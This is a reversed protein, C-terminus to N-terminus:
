LASYHLTQTQVVDVTVLEIDLVFVPGALCTSVLLLDLKRCLQIHLHSYIDEFSNQVLAVLLDDEEGTVDIINRQEVVDTELGFDPQHGKLFVHIM